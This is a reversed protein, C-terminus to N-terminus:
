DEEPDDEHGRAVYGAGWCAECGPWGEGKCEPCVEVDNLTLERRGTGPKPAAHVVLQRGMARKTAAVRQMYMAVQPSDSAVVRPPKGPSLPAIEWACGAEDDVTVRDGTVAEATGGDDEVTWSSVGNLRAKRGM